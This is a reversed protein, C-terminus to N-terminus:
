ISIYEDLTLLFSVIVCRYEFILYINIIQPFIVAMYKALAHITPMNFPNMYLSFHSVQNM